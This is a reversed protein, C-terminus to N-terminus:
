GRRMKSIDIAEKVSFVPVSNSKHMTAIGIMATGTYVNAAKKTATGIGNGLSKINGGFDRIPLIYEISNSQVSVKSNQKVDYKELLEKWSKQLLRKAATPKSKKRKPIHEYLIM